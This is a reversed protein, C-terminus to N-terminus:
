FAEALDDRVHAIQDAIGLQDRLKILAPVENLGDHGDLAAGWSMAIHHRTIGLPSQGGMRALSIIHDRLDSINACCSQLGDSRTGDILSMWEADTLEIKQRNSM